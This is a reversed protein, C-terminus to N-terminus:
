FSSFGYSTESNGLLIQEQPAQKQQDKEEHTVFLMNLEAPVKKKVQWICTQRDISPCIRHSLRELVLYITLISLPSPIHM